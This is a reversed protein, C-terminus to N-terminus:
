CVQPDDVVLEFTTGMKEQKVVNGWMWGVLPGLAGM